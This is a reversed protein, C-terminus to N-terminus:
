VSQNLLRELLRRAQDIRPDTDAACLERLPRAASPDATAALAQALQVRAETDWPLRQELLAALVEETQVYRSLEIGSAFCVDDRLLAEVRDPQLSAAYGRLTTARDGLHAEDDRINDVMWQSLPPHHRMLAAALVAVPEAPNTLHDLVAPADAPTLARRANSLRRPDAGFGGRLVDQLPGVETSLRLWAAGLAGNLGKPGKRVYIARLLAAAPGPHSKLLTQVWAQERRAAGGKPKRVGTRSAGALRAGVTVADDPDLATTSILPVGLRLLLTRLLRPQDAFGSAIAKATDDLSSPPAAKLLLVPLVWPLQSRGEASGAIRLEEDSVPGLQSLAYVRLLDNMDGSGLSRRLADALADDEPLLGYDGLRM